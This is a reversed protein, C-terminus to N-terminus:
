KIKEVWELKDVNVGENPYVVSSIYWQGNEDKFIEPAHANLITIEKENDTGFDNLDDSLYVYAKHTYAGQLIIGDWSGKEWACVFLYFSDNYFIISPSEPDFENTVLITKAESWNILDKSTRMRVCKESCYTIYYTGKHFLLNPDRAGKEEEFLNGKPTWNYLDPSTALRIPSHGYVMNYLGDKKVIYPAHNATIEGPRQKPTLIKPLDLYHDEKLTEKFNTSSSIAHFSAYEGDHVNGLKPDVYPHTIGFIHWKGDEAKVFTHDNPVWREYWQGEKLFKTDPGFFNDGKPQYVEVFKNEQKPILVKIATKHKCQVLLVSLVFLLLIKAKM